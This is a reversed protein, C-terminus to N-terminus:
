VPATSPKLPWRFARSLVHWLPVRPQWRAIEFITENYYGALADLEERWGALETGALAEDDGNVCAIVRERWEAVPTMARERDSCAKLRGARTWALDRANRIVLDCVRDLDNPFMLEALGWVSPRFVTQLCDKAVWYLWQNVGAFAEYEPSGASPFGGDCYRSWDELLTLLVAWPLDRSVHATVGAIGFVISPVRRVDRDRLAVPQWAPPILHGTIMDRYRLFFNIDLRLLFRDGETGFRHKEVYEQVGITVERYFRNFYSLGHGPTRELEEQMDTQAAVVDLVSAENWDIDFSPRRRILPAKRSPFSGAPEPAPHMEADGPDVLGARSM